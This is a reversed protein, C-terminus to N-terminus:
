VNRLFDELTNYTLYKAGVGLSIDRLRTIASCCTLKRWIIWRDKESGARIIIVCDSVPLSGSKVMAAKGICRRGVRAILIDGPITNNSGSIPQYPVDIIETCSTLTTTHIFRGHQSILSKYTDKGRSLEYSLEVSLRRKKISFICSKYYSYDARQIAEPTTVVIETDYNSHRLMLNNQENSQRTRIILIFVQADTNKFSDLPLQICSVIEYQTLLFERLSKWREGSVIGAPLIIGLEGGPKLLRLNQALFVLEIPITRRNTSICDSLRSERIIKRLNSDNERSYYPPNSVLLEVDGFQESLIQPLDPDCGDIRLAKITKRRNACSINDKDIDIGILSLNQWRRRAAHLLEGSGFGLDLAYKPNDIALNKVLLNSYIKQTYYQSLQM